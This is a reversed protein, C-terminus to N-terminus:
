LSIVSLEFSVLHADVSIVSSSIKAQAATISIVRELHLDIISLTLDATDSKGCNVACACRM